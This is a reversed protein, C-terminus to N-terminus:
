DLTQADLRRRRRLGAGGEWQQAFWEVADERNDSCSDAWVIRSYSDTARASLALALKGLAVLYDVLSVGAAEAPAIEEAARVQAADWDLLAAAQTENMGALTRLLKLPRDYLERMQAATLPEIITQSGVLSFRADVFQRMAGAVAEAAPTTSM